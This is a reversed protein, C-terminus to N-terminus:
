GFKTFNSQNGNLSCASGSAGIVMAKLGGAIEITHSQLCNMVSLRHSATGSCYVNAWLNNIVTNQFNLTKYGISCTEAFGDRITVIGGGQSTTRADAFIGTGWANLSCYDILVGGTGTGVYIGIGSGTSVGYLDCKSVVGDYSFDANGYNSGEISIGRNSCCAVVRDISCQDQGALKIGDYFHIPREVQLSLDGEGTLDVVYLTGPGGNEPPNSLGGFGYTRGYTVDCIYLDKFTSEHTYAAYIAAGNTRPVTSEFRMSSFVLGNLGSAAIEPVYPLECHFVDGYNGVCNLQTSRGAGVMEINPKSINITNSLYYNGAQLFVRGGSPLANIANQINTHDVPSSLSGKPTVVITANGIAASASISKTVKTGYPDDVIVFLDDPTIGSSKPLDTIKINAM